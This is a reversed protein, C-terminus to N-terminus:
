WFNFNFNEYRDHNGHYDNLLFSKFPGQLRM